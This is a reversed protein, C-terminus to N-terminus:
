DAMKARQWLAELEDLELDEMRQGSKRLMAEMARYRTEFTQNARRLATEADVKAHRALNVCSFLLDGIEAELRDSGGAPSIEAKVEDLEEEIKELPGAIDPWDFGAEAARKQLKTSRVLAPLALTVGDLQGVPEGIDRKRNREDAKHREWAQSQQYVTDIKEDAFVHPHRRLMKSCISEVVDSFDFMSQERAMQTYFVVQFLLDGLEDRLDDMANRQIADAVEYAEEITHCAISAFTQERDWPCGSVPDRLREMIEILKQM